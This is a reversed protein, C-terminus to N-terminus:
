FLIKLFTMKKRYNFMSHDGNPGTDLSPTTTNTLLWDFQNDAGNTWSCLTGDDFTCENARFSCEGAKFM